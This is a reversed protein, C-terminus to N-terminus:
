PHCRLELFLTDVEQLIKRMALGEYV